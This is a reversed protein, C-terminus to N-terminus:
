AHRSAAEAVARFNAPILTTAISEVLARVPREFPGAVSALFAPAIELGGEFTLRTGRGAMAPVFSTSGSCTIAGEGLLPEITWTCTLGENSWCARDIWAISSGGLRGQLFSPVEQRARWRNVVVVGACSPRRELEEISAVDALSSALEPLRDRMTAFLKEPAARLVVLASFAKM